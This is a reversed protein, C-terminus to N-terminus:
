GKRYGFMATYTESGPNDGPIPAGNVVGIGIQRFQRSLMVNRHEPSHMWRRVMARPTGARGVGWELNEGLGWARAGALYGANAARSELTGDGGHSFFNGAVMANSHGQAAVGLDINPRVNHLHHRRRQENILCTVSLRTDDSSQTGPPQDAGPCASAPSALISCLAATALLGATAEKRM